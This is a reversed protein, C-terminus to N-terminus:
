ALLDSHEVAREHQRAKAFTNIFNKIFIKAPDHVVVVGRMRFRRKKPPPNLSGAPLSSLENLQWILYEEDVVLFTSPFKPPVRILEISPADPTGSRSDRADLMAKFHALYTEDFVDSLRQEPDLQLIRKYPVRASADLLSKFYAARHGPKEDPHSREEAFSNLALIENKAQCVISRTEDLLRNRGDGRREDVAFYTVRPAIGRYLEEIKQSLRSTVLILAAVMIFILWLEVRIANEGTLLYAIFHELGSFATAGIIVLLVDKATHFM